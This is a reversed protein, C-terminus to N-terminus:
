RKNRKRDLSAAKKKDNRKKREEKTISGTASTNWDKFRRRKRPSLDLSAIAAAAVLSPFPTAYRSTPKPEM